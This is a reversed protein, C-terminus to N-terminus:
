GPATQQHLGIWAVGCKAARSLAGLEGFYDVVAGVAPLKGLYRFAGRPQPRKALEGTISNLLGMLSWLSKALDVPTRPFGGSESAERDSAWDVSTAPLERNCLVAALLRTQQWPDSIGHERAVACLIIAQSSFGFLEQIPLQDAVAGLAGPFAVAITDLAGVRWVWWKVRADLDMEDWAQTGPVNVANLVWAVADQAKDLVGDAGGLHRTREKLGLLDTEWVVDLLPDIIRVARYLATAVDTDTIRATPVPLLNM